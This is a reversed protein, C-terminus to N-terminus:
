PESRVAGARSRHGLWMPEGFPLRVRPLHALGRLGEYAPSVALSTLENFPYPMPEATAM